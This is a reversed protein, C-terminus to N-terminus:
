RRGDTDVDLTEAGDLACWENLLLSLLPGLPETPLTDSAVDLESIPVTWTTGDFLALRDFCWDIHTGEDADEVHIFDVREM